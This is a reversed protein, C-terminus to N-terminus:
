LLMRGAWRPMPVCERINDIGSIWKILRDFGLGFGGHPTSGYKRLETYWSYQDEDLHHKRLASQLMDLREERLSGGALEGLGPVLLDFCAVTRGDDNARMYFPKLGAPYDTVFVPGGVFDEAIWREHESRLPLGWAPNHEFLKGSPNSNQAEQLAKIAEGYSIRAWSAKGSAQTGLYKMWFPEVEKWLQPIESHEQSLVSKVAGEVVTCIDDLSRVFAWEAELMWFESLHRNTQSREARFCPSLTYVRALSAALAELHLQSSVTLYASRGYFETHAETSSTNETIAQFTDGSGECDNSTLIPTHTYCFEHDEFFGHLTRMTTDRLRLMSSTQSTRARLNCHDRLYEVSLDKKQIPYSEPDSGGICEIASVQLERDQGPGPSDSLVGTLQVSSGNTLSQVLNVDTFVAQLPQSTSGDTIAAFAIRKQRRVSKVWGHVQIPPSNSLAHSKGALLQRITPPLTSTSLLRRFSM